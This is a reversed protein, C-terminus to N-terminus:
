VEDYLKNRVVRLKKWFEVSDELDLELEILM